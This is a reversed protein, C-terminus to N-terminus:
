ASPHDGVELCQELYKRRERAVKLIDNSGEIMNRKLVNRNSFAEFFEIEECRNKIEERIGNEWFEQLIKNDPYRQKRQMLPQAEQM